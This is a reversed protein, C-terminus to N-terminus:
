GNHKGCIDDQLLMLEKIERDQDETLPYKCTSEEEQKVFVKKIWKWM